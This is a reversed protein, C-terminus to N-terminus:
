GGQEGSGNRDGGGIQEMDGDGGAAVDVQSVRQDVQRGTQQGQRGAGGVGVLDVVLDDVILHVDSGVGLVATQRDLHRQVPLRQLIQRGGDGLLAPGLDADWVAGDPLHRGEGVVDLADIVVVAVGVDVEGLGVIGVLGEAESEAPHLFIHIGEAVAPSYGMVIGGAPEFFGRHVDHGQRPVVWGGHRANAGVALGASVMHEGGAIHLRPISQVESHLIGAPGGGQIPLVAPIIQRIVAPAVVGIVIGVIGIVPYEGYEHYENQHDEEHDPGGDVVAIGAAEAGAVYEDVAQPIGGARIAPM